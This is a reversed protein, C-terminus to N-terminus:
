KFRGVTVAMRQDFLRANEMDGPLMEEPSSDSLSQAMAGSLSGVYNVNNCQASKANSPMLGRGVWVGSHRTAFIFLYHMTSLKDGSM